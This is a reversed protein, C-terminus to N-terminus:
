DDADDAGATAAFDFYARQYKPKLGSMRYLDLPSIKEQKVARGFVRAFTYGYQALKVREQAVKGGGTGSTFDPNGLTKVERLWATHSGESVLGLQELRVVTAQQSINLFRACRRIEDLTPVNSVRARGFAWKTLAVPALVRASFRNCVREVTNRVVFPDSIGSSSMLAHALEHFLTFNRRGHNQNETNIVIVRASSDALCFGSGDDSPFNDHMVFVGKSEVASRCVSYFQRADRSEIQQKETIGLYDRIEQAYERRKIDDISVHRPLSDRHGLSEAEEQLREALDIARVTKPLKPTASPKLERFDVVAGGLEPAHDMYFVFAPVSLQVSLQSVLSQNPPPNDAITAKLASESVGIRESVGKLTLHRAALISAFVAQNFTEM